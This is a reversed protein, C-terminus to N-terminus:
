PHPECGSCDAIRLATTVLDVSRDIDLSKGPTGPDFNVSGPIPSYNTPAQDYRAAIENTLYNRLQDEDIKARLPVEQSAPLRNFLYDFFSTWFPLSVRAQDAATM